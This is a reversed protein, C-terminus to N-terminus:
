GGPTYPLIDFEPYYSLLKEGSLDLWYIEGPQLQEEGSIAYVEASGSGGPSYEGAQAPVTGQLFIVALTLVFALPRNWKQKM